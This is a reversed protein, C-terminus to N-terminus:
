ASKRKGISTVSGTPSAPVPGTPFASKEDFAEYNRSILLDVTKAGIEEVEELLKNQRSHLISFVIMVPIAVFLGLATTNMSTSIGQALLTQKQSPDAFSVAQFSQILGHITGLLGLLTAVNAVM